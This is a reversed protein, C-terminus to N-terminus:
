TGSRLCRSGPTASGVAYRRSWCSVSVVVSAAVVGVAVVVVVGVAGAVVVVASVM